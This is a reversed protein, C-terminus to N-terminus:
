YEGKGRPLREGRHLSEEESHSFVWVDLPLRLGLQISHNSRAPEGVECIACGQGVDVRDDFLAESPLADDRESHRM